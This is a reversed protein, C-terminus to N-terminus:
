PFAFNKDGVCLFFDCIVSPQCNKKNVALVIIFYGLWIFDFDFKIDILYNYLKSM